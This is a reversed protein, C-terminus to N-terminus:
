NLAALPPVTARNLNCIAQVDDASLRSAPHMITYIFMPMEGERVQNCAEKLHKGQQEQSSAGWTSFNMARRGDNVDHVVLWSIPAVSSYWPWVTENSHCDRCARDIVSMGVAAGPLMAQITQGSNTAPNTRAPRILQIAILLGIGSLIVTKFWRRV